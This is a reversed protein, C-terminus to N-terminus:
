PKFIDPVNAPRADSVTVADFTINTTDNDSGLMVLTTIQGDFGEVVVSTFLGALKQSIPSITLKWNKDSKHGKVIFYESLCALDGDLLAPLLVGLGDYVGGTARTEQVDKGTYQKMIGPLLVTKSAVPTKVEWLLGQGKISHFSGTSLFPKKFLRMIKEQRFDGKIEHIKQLGSLILRSEQEMDSPENAVVYAFAVGQLLWCFMLMNKVFGQFENMVTM